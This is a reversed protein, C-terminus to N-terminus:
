NIKSIPSYYGCYNMIISQSVKFCATLDFLKQRCVSKNAIIFIFIKELLKEEIKLVISMRIRPPKLGKLLTLRRLVEATCVM